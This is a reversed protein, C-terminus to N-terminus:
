SLEKHILLAQHYSSLAGTLDGLSELLKGYEAYTEQSADLQISEEFYTKAKGWLQCRVAIRGLSLFLVAQKDDKKLLNEAHSLQKKSDNIVLLGYLRALNKDWSRKLIKYIWEELKQSQEPDNMFYSAYAYVLSPDIQLKKPIKKWIEQILVAGEARNASSDILQVYAKIQLQNLEDRTINKAKYLEPLLELLHNWDGLHIYVRELLKLVLSHKPAVHRLHTLTALAQEIQGQNLQFQVQVLGIAVDAHPAAIHAKRLYVDRRDFAKQEHAVKALAVYNLFPADSQALGEKLYYEANKWHNELAEIFGRTTKSHSKSKRRWKLWNKWRYFSVDMQSFFHIISYLLMVLIVFSLVAFWLPMEVSWHHFSFFALGPDQAIYMGVWVSITLIILIWILQRM